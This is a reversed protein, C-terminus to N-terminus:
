TCGSTLCLLCRTCTVHPLVRAAPPMLAGTRSGPEHLRQHAFPSRTPRCSAFPNRCSRDAGSKDALNGRALHWLLAPFATGLPMARRLLRRRERSTGAGSCGAGRGQAAGLAAHCEQRPSILGPWVRGQELPTSQHHKKVSIPKGLPWAPAGLQARLQQQHEPLAEKEKPRIRQRMWTRSIGRPWSDWRSTVGERLFRQAEDTEM